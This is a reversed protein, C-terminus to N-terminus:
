KPAPKEKRRSPGDLVLRHTHHVIRDCIADALTPDALYITGTRRRSSPRSHIRRM